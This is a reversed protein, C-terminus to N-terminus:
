DPVYPTGLHQRMQRYKPDTDRLVKDVARLRDKGQQMAARIPEAYEGLQEPTALAVRELTEDDVWREAERAAFPGAEAAGRGLAESAGPSTLFRQTANAGVAMTSAGRSRVQANLSALAKSGLITDSVGSAFIDDRIGTRNKQQFKAAGREAHERADEFAGLRRKQPVFRNAIIRDGRGRQAAQELITDEVAQRLMSSAERESEENRSPVRKGFNAQDQVDRKMRETQRLGLHGDANERSFALELVNEAEDRFVEAPAKNSGSNNYVDDFRAMLREALDVADPGTFGRRELNTIIDGLRIREPEIAQEIREYTNLTNALPRIHGEDLMLAASEDRLPVRTVAAIDSDGQINERAKRVAYRRFWPAALRAGEGVAAGGAGWAAGTAAGQLVDRVGGGVDGQTLDARGDTLGGLAGYAAGTAIGSAVRQAAPSAAIRGALGAGAAARTVRPVRVGPLPAAISAGIGTATGLRAAWPNLDGGVAQREAREDRISRYEDMLSPEDLAAPAEGAARMEELAQPTFQVNGDRDRLLRVAATTGIDVLRNGLPIASAAHGLYTEWPGVDPIEAAKAARLAAEPSYSMLPEPEEYPPLDDYGPVDDDEVLRGGARMLDEFTPEAM